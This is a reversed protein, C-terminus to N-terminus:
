IKDPIKNLKQLSSRSNALKKLWRSLISKIKFRRSLISKVKFRRSLISEIKSLRNMDKM